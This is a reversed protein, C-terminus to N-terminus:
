EPGTLVSQHATAATARPQLVSPAVAIQNRGSSKARYLAEDARRLVQTTTEGAHAAAVGASFTLVGAPPSFPHPLAARQVNARHREAVAAGADADLDALLILLEEGGYRYVRDGIRTQADLMSAVRRLADDGAQHGLADNYDKFRDLDCLVLCYTGGHREARAALEALDEDLRLRNAVGTLPDRRSEESLRDNAERLEGERQQLREYLAAQERRLRAARASLTAGTIVVGACLALEAGAPATGVILLAQVGALIAFTLSPLLGGRRQIVQDIDRVARPQRATAAGLGVLIMGLTWLADVANTGPVYSETLLLPTWLVFAIANVVLGLVFVSMGPDARLDIAGTIVLQLMVLAASVYLAPYALTTVQAATALPSSGIQHWLLATLLACVAVVLPALELWAVPRGCAGTGLRLVGMASLVAFSLWCVDAANPSSPYSTLGYTMWCLEGVLWAACGWLLLTWGARDRPASGRRAAGVGVVAIVSGTLWGGHAVWVRASMAVLYEGTVALAAVIALALLGLILRGRAAGLPAAEDARPADFM